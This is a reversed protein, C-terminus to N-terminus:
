NIRIGILRDSRPHNNLNRVVFLVFFVLAVKINLSLPQINPSKSNNFEPSLSIIPSLSKPLIQLEVV